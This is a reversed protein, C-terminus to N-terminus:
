FEPMKTSEQVAKLCLLHYFINGRDALNAVVNRYISFFFKLSGPKLDGEVLNLLNFFDSKRRCFYNLQQVVIRM